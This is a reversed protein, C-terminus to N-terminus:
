EIGLGSVVLFGIGLAPILNYSVFKMLSLQSGGGASITLSMLLFFLPAALFGLIFIECFLDIKKNTQENRIKIFETEKEKSRKVYDPMDGGTILINEIGEFFSNLNESCMTKRTNEIATCIDTGFLETEKYINNCESKIEDEIGIHQINKMIESISTGASTFIFMIHMFQSMNKDIKHEREKIKLYPYISFILITLIIIFFWFIFISILVIKLMKLDNIENILYLILASHTLYLIFYILILLSSCSIYMPFNVNLRSMKMIRKTKESDFTLFYKGFISYSKKKYYIIIKNFFLKLIKM